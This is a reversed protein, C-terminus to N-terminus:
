CHIHSKHHSRFQKFTSFTNEISLNSNISGLRDLSSCQNYKRFQPEQLYHARCGAAELIDEVDIDIYTVLHSQLVQLLLTDHDRTHSDCQRRETSRQRSIEASDVLIEQKSDGVEEQM